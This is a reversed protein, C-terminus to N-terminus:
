SKGHTLEDVRSRVEHRDGEIRHATVRPAEGEEDVSFLLVSHTGEPIHYELYAYSRGPEAGASIEFDRDERALEVLEHLWEKITTAGHQQAM